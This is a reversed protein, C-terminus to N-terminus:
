AVGVAIRSGLTCRTEREPRILREPPGHILAGTDSSRTLILLTAHPVVIAGGHRVILERVADLLPRLPGCHADVDDILEEPYGARARDYLEAVGGFM